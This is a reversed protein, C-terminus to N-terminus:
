AAFGGKARALLGLLPQLLEKPWHPMLHCNELVLWHGSHMAKRLISVVVSVPDWAESGLAIVKLHKQGQPGVAFHCLLEFPDWPSGLSGSYHRLHGSFDRLLGSPDM